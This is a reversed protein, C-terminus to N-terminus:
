QKKASLLVDLADKVTIMKELEINSIEIGMKEEVLNLIQVMDISDAGLDAEFTSDLSIEKIYVQLVEEIAEKLIELEM